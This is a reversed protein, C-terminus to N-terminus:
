GGLAEIREELSKVKDLLESYSIALAELNKNNAEQNNWNALREAM